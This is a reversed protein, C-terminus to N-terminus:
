QAQRGESGDRPDVSIDLDGLLRVLHPVTPTCLKELARSRHIKVTREAIGLRDGVERNKLGAAVLVAVERERPTLSALRRRQAARERLQERLDRHQSAASSIAHLLTDPDLPKELYDVAGTKIARVTDRTRGRGTIFVIPPAAAEDALVEQLTLGDLGPLEVDLVLCSTDDLHGSQLLAEASPYTAATLGRSRCLRALSARVADDDDVIAVHAPPLSAVPSDM